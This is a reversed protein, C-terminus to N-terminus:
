CYFLSRQGTEAEADKRRRRVWVDDLQNFDWGHRTRLETVGLYAKLLKRARRTKNTM